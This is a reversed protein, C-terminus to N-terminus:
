DKTLSANYFGIKRREEMETVQRKVESKASGEFYSFDMEYLKEVVKRKEKERMGVLMEVMRGRMDPMKVVERVRGERMGRAAVEHWGGLRRAAEEVEGWV